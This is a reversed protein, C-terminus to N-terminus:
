NHVLINLMETKRQCVGALFATETAVHLPTTTGKKSRCLNNCDAGKLLLVSALECRKVLPLSEMSMVVTIPSKRGCGNPNSGRDILLKILKPYQGVKTEIMEALDISAIKKQPMAQVIEMGAVLDDKKLAHELLETGSGPVCSGLEIFAFVFSFKKASFAKMCLKDLHEKSSKSAIYKFMLLEVPNDHKLVDIATLIDAQKVKMGVSLSLSHSATFRFSYMCVVCNLWVGKRGGERIHM